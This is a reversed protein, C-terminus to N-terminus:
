KLMLCALAQRWDALMNASSVTWGQSALRVYWKVGHITAHFVLAHDAHSPLVISWASSNDAKGQLWAHQLTSVHLAWVFMTFPM